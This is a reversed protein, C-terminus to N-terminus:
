PTVQLTAYHLPTRGDTDQVSVDPTHDLLLQMVDERGQQAAYHLPTRGDDTTASLDAGAELLLRSAELHGHDAACHLPSSGGEGGREEIDTGDTALLYRVEATHGRAAATWLAPNTV